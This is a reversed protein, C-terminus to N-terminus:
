TEETRAKLSQQQPYATITQKKTEVYECKKHHILSLQIVSLRYFFTHLFVREGAQQTYGPTQWQQGLSRMLGYM